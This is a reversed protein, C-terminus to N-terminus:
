YRYHKELNNMTHLMQWARKGLLTMPICLICSLASTFFTLFTTFKRGLFKWDILVICFIIAPVELSASILTNLYIDGYLAGTNLSLSFYLLNSAFSGSCFM